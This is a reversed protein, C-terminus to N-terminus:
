VGTGQTALEKWNSPPEDFIDCSEFFYAIIVMVARERERSGRANGGVYEQLKWLIDSPDNYESKIEQYYYNIGQAVDDRETISSRHQYYQDVLHTFRMAFILDTRDDKPLRNYELKKPPVERIPTQPTAQRREAILHNLLPELDDLGISYVRDSVPIACRLIDEITARELRCLERYLGSPNLQEFKLEPHESSARALLKAVEPQIGHLDNHVFVFTDFEGGRKTIAKKLDSTFKTRVKTADVVKPAYCAYLKRDHLSLGDAGLDGLNGHTKVGIFSPYRASMVEQFFREFEEGFLETLKSRFTVKIFQRDEFSLAM